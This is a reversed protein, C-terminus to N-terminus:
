KHKNCHPDKTWAESDGCDCCGAGGSAFMKYKHDVHSTNFFCDKCFVCTPDTRCEVCTYFYDGKDFVRGCITTSGGQEKLDKYFSEINTDKSFLQQLRDAFQSLLNDQPTTLPNDGSFILPVQGFIEHILLERLDSQIIEM